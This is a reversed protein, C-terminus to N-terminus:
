NINTLETKEPSIKITGEKWNSRDTFCYDLLAQVQEKTENLANTLTEVNNDLQSVQETLKQIQEAKEDNIAYCMSSSNSYRMCSSSSRSM